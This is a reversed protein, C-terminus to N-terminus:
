FSVTTQRSIVVTVRKLALAVPESVLHDGPSLTKVQCAEAVLLVEEAADGAESGRRDLAQLFRLESELPASKASSPGTFNVFAVAASSYGQINLFNSPSVPHHDAM